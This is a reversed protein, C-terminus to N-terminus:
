ELMGQTEWQSMNQGIDGVRAKCNREFEQNGYFPEGQVDSSLSFCCMTHTSSEGSVEMKSDLGQEM